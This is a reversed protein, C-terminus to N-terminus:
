RRAHRSQHGGAAPGRIPLRPVVSEIALSEESRRGREPLARAGLILGEALGRLHVVLRRERAAHWLWGAQRYLVWPLWRAPFWKAVLLVTNRAVLRQHTGDLQHSSGEGVHRSVAPEYRCRWGALRLALALDVDELYAFYREDFAGVALVADRRYIAAGACAGFVEGARDWSGDDACFRGRQESVGDRRLVDGADYVLTHDGLELMKGAVSGAGPDTVLAGSMRALWDPELVVDTNLLAVLEENAAEIGRNVAFAFGTNTGLELVRVQPYNARLHAVSGDRSGNDVAIVERPTLTQAAISGLCDDLWRRGNWVPIV